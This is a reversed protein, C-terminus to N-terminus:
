RSGRMRPDVEDRLADGFMNMAFVVLSLAVTPFVLIWPSVIMYLRGESSMMGGWTPTPPPVGYGLFSLSAEAVINAGISTSVLVVVTPFINPLIHLLLTRTHGAGVARTAEIYQSSRIGLVAGRTVRSLSLAGRIALAIIVNQVSPGLVVLVAILLVLPPVAQAADVFRQAIYDFMGGLYGSVAGLVTALAVSILTTTLGVYLSIRAGYIVRSYLDRGFQDTGFWHAGSPGILSPGVDNKSPSFPAVIAAFLAILVIVVLFAACMAGLPQNRAFRALKLAWGLTTSPRTAALPLVPERIQAAM